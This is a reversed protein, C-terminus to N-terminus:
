AFGRKVSERVQAVRKEWNENREACLRCPEGERGVEARCDKGDAVEDPFLLAAITVARKVTVIKNLAEDHQEATM